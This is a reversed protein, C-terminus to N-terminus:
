HAQVPRMCRCTSPCAPTKPALPPPRRTAWGSATGSTRCSCPRRGPTCAESSSFVLGQISFADHMGTISVVPNGSRLKGQAYAANGLQMCAAFNAQCHPQRSGLSWQETRAAPTRAPAPLWCPLRQLPYPQAWPLPILPQHCLHVTSVADTAQQVHAAHRCPVLPGREPVSTPLSWHHPQSHWNLTACKHALPSCRLGRTIASKTQLVNHCSTRLCVHEEARCATDSMASIHSTAALRCIMLPSTM